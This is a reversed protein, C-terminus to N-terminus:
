SEPSQHCSLNEVLVRFTFFAIDNSVTRGDPLSFAFFFDSVSSCFVLAITEFSCPAKEAYAVRAVLTTRVFLTCKKHRVM